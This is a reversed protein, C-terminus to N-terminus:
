ELEDLFVVEISSLEFVSILEDETTEILNVKDVLLCFLANDSDPTNKIQEKMKRLICPYDEGISTKIECYIKSNKHTQAIYGDTTLYFYNRFLMQYLTYFSFPTFVTHDFTMVVDWNCEAEIELRINRVKQLYFFNLVKYQFSQDLFQNQLKNHQPTPSNSNTMMVSSSSNNNTLARYIEPYKQEVFSQTLLWKSYRKDKLLSTIPENKYKGFTVILSM